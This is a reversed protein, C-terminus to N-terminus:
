KKPKNQVTKEFLWPYLFSVWFGGFFLLGFQLWHQAWLVAPLLILGLSLLGVAIKVAQLSHHVPTQKFGKEQGWFFGAYFGLLAAVLAPKDLFLIAILSVLISTVLGAEAELKTLRFHHKEFSLQIKWAIKGILLGIGIGVAVDLFFHLGLVMRSLGVLALILIGLMLLATRRYKKSYYGVIASITVSHGSPFSFDFGQEFQKMLPNEPSVRFEAPSPRPRAIWFKLVATIASAFLVLNVLFFAKKERHSWYLLTAVFLWFIPNGLFTIIDFLKISWVPVTNQIAHLVQADITQIVEFM